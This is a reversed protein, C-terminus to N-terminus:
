LQRKTKNQGGPIDITFKRYAHMISILLHKSKGQISKIVEYKEKLDFTMHISSELFGCVVREWQLYEEEISSLNSPTIQEGKKPIVRYVFPPRKCPLYVELGDAKENVVMFEDISEFSIEFKHLTEKHFCLVLMCRMEFQIVFKANSFCVGNHSKCFVFPTALNGFEFVKCMVQLNSTTIRNAKSKHLQIALEFSNSNLIFNITELMFDIAEHRISGYKNRLQFSCKVMKTKKFIELSTYLKQQTEVEVFGNCKRLSAVLSYMQKDIDEIYIQFFMKIVKQFKTKAFFKDHTTEKRVNNKLISMQKVLISTDYALSADMIINVIRILKKESEVIDDYAKKTGRWAIM